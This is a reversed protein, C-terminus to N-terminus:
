FPYGIALHYGLSKGFSPLNYYGKRGTEYPVHLGIGLDFRIVLFDLDYRLGAGTGLAIDNAFRKIDFHSQPREKDERLLWVNGADLFLAGYLSAILPFRYEVNAEMKFDGMQDIYSYSSSAPHYAGPGISRMAFARISNAGGVSFLDNYPATTSNGYSWIAGLFAQTAIGSRPTLEFLHTYRATIKLYQAFSVGFLEKNRTGYSQGALAYISSTLNGAEKIHLTLTRPAHRLSNWYFTYEISPVFKDQMSAYLAQNANVISDFRETTHLQLDYELHFPTFEHRMNRKRQFTYDARIGLSVRNFYNARNLWKADTRFATSSILHRNLSRGMGFFIFRPYSLNLSTGYEYSNMMSRDGHLDAGTQWEYSGWLKLGLTEAGRFANKKAMSFSVGPGVQDNDKSTIKGEFEADYPKDLTAAIKVDLTDCKSTTDRAVYNVNVQSFVGMGSIKDQIFDQINQRYPSGKRYFLYRKIAGMKLPPEESKKSYIMMVDGRELTDLVQTDHNTRLRIYTKGIYFPRQAVAPISPSACVKMQVKQPSQITDARFTVYEPRFFYYGNNRLLTSLRNREEDLKIVNFPDNRQLLSQRKLVTMMSDTIGPFRQYEISDLHFLENPHIYYEIKAELTDKNPILTHSAIGRFYGYNHLTNTAIQTRLDPNVTSIYKPTSSFHNMMWRGFKTNSNMYHYYVWLRLRFPWRANSSGIIAGNPSYAMIGQVESKAKQYAQHEKERIEKTYKIQERAQNSKEQKAGKGSIASTVSSYADAIATIVGTSDRSETDDFSPM